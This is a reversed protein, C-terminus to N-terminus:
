AAKLGVATLLQDFDDVIKQYLRDLQTRKQQQLKSDGSTPQLLGATLPAYIRDFLKLFVLSISYGKPLLRYRRSKAVKQVLNKARLKSLDYRLSALSYKDATLHLASLASGNPVHQWRCHSCLPCPCADLRAPTASRAEPGSDTQRQSARRSPWNTCTAETSSPKWSTKSFMSTTTASLAWGNACSRCIKLLRKSETTPSM